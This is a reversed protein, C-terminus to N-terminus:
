CSPRACTTPSATGTGTRTHGRSQRAPYSTGTYRRAIPPCSTTLENEGTDSSTEDSPQNESEDMAPEGKTQEQVRVAPGAIRGRGLLLPRDLDPREVAVVQVLRGVVAEVADVLEAGVELPALVAAVEDDSAAAEDAAVPKGTEPRPVVRGGPLEEGDGDGLHQSESQGAGGDRAGVDAAELEDGLLVIVGIRLQNNAPVARVTQKRPKPLNGRKM